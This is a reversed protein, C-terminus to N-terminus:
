TSARPEHQDVPVGIVVVVIFLSSRAHLAEALGSAFVSTRQEGHV